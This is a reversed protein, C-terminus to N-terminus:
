KLDFLDERQKKNLYNVEGAAVQVIKECNQLSSIRHAIMIVTVSASLQDIADMLKQETINDLASTAEDLVIVQAERYLARAIGIRQKQGGSLRLGREGILTNLGDPLDLVVEELQSIKVVMNLKEYDISRLGFAINAALTDDSLYISQPVHAIQKHWLKQFDLTLDQSDVKIKGNVPTLLGMILDVLTSKGSGTKGIIGVKEGKRIKLDVSKLADKKENPYKYTVQEFSIEEEFSLDDKYSNTLFDVQNVGCCFNEIESLLESSGQVASWGYYTQQVLPLLRQAGIAMTGLIPIAGAIGGTQTIAYLAYVALLTMAAGEVVIRPSSQIFANIGQSNRFKYTELKFRNFFFSHTNLLIIDKFAGFAEQVGRIRETQSSALILSNKTLVRSVVLSIFIYLFAMVTFAVFGATFDLSLLFTIIFGAIILSVFGQFLPHFVGFVVVQVKEVASVLESSNANIYNEYDQGLFNEYIKLDIDHGLGTIFRVSTWNLCLRLVATLGSAFILLIAAYKVSFSGGSLVFGFVPMTYTGANDLSSLGALVPVVAGISVVEFVGVLLMLLLTLVLHLRRSSSMVSLINFISLASHM